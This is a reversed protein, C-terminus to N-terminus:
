CIGLLPITMQLIVLIMSPVRFKNYLPVYDFFIHSLWMFHRGWGLLVALLSIGVIWWKMPGKILVLGLVFLFVAIAGMYMPGATFPQDGWYTPMQQIMQDANQAGGQKLTKYTESSKNLEGGSAGGVFNPILLNATEGVGYSWATAYEKDLGGKSQSATANAEGLEAGGRMTYKSYEWTPWLSNINSGVSLITALLVFASTKIFHNLTKNKLAFYVQYIGYSLVILGLYYTVQPHGAIIEFTLAIGFLIPGLINNKQFSYILSALVSPAFALAIIKTNHGTQIIQFNYSCFAFAIAGIIGLWPSVGLALMLLYFSAMLLIVDIIPRPIHFFVDYIERLYNDKVDFGITTTPMGSFMSNTWLANEGTEKLYRNSEEYAGRWSSTDSQNTVKGQFIVSFYVCAIVIFSSLAIIHCYLSKQNINKM